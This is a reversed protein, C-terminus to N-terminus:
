RRALHQGSIVRGHSQPDANLAASDVDGIWLRTALPSTSWRCALQTVTWMEAIGIEEKGRKPTLQPARGAGAAGAASPSARRSETALRDAIARGCRDAGVRRVAVSEEVHCAADPLRRGVPVDIPVGLVGVLRTADRDVGRSSRELLAEVRRLRLEADGSFTIM